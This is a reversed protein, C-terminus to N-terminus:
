TAPSFQTSDPPTKRSAEDPPPSLFFPALSSSRTTQTLDRKSHRKGKTERALILPFSYATQPTPLGALLCTHLFSLPLLCCKCLIAGTTSRSVNRQEFTHQAARLSYPFCWHQKFRLFSLSPFNGSLLLASGCVVKWLQLICNFLNRQQM